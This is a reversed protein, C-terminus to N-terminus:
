AVVRAHNTLPGFGSPLRESPTDGITHTLIQRPLAINRAFIQDIRVSLDSVENLIDDDQCCTNGTGETKLNLRNQQVLLGEIAVSILKGGCTKYSVM